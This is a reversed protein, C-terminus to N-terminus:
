NILPSLKLKSFKRGLANDAKSGEHFDRGM